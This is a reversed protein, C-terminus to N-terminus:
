GTIRSQYSRNAFLVGIKHVRGLLCNRYGLNEPITINTIITTTIIGPVM